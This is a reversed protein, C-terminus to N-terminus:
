PLDARRITTRFHNGTQAFWWRPAPEKVGYGPSHWGEGAQRPLARGAGDTAEIRFGLAEFDPHPHWLQKRPLGALAPVDPVDLWDEVEWRFQTKHQRVQRTHYLAPHLHRYVHVKGRFTIWEDDEAVSAEVAGSWHYWIFRGGKQMQDHDGLQVTNHSATGMFFQLAEPTTNYKYSGADRLLNLGNLWLDLHLNDAQSPRDPHNGCRLFAFKAPDRLVYFGGQAYSKSVQPVPPTAGSDTEGTVRIGLWFRDEAWPGPGYLPWGHLLAHLAELQPRFDRYDCSNLRFFLAGDNAGYNPLHGTPLDQLQYLLDLSKRLRDYLPETFRDGNAAALRFAWTFLQVVVRHYNTSFQLYSGDPYVQYLGEEELWRKGSERWQRSEPFSPYLLGVAYLCLCETVAHNNRVTLRSFRINAAVHRAQWYLSEIVTAFVEETLAPAERYYYLAFTWNLLRLSIEQSCVYNPGCNLPNQRIWDTIQEFVFASQDEGTYLDYRLLPYLFTFRSKEWVYKIDGHAPDLDRIATWHRHADYRFGTDPNTQWDYAPGLPLYFTNFFLLQGGKIRETETRLAALADAPLPFPPSLDKKSGFFFAGGTRKWADLTLSPTGTARVPFDRRLLGTRKRLEYGARFRFARWGMNRVLLPLTQLTRLM